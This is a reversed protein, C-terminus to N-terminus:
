SVGGMVVAFLEKGLVKDALGFEVAETATFFHDYSTAEKMTEENQGTYQCLMYNITERREKLNNVISEMQTTNGSVECGLLPEHIMVKSRTSVYRHGPTGAALLVAGMSSASGLAITKIVCPAAEMADLLAFGAKISGGPSDILLTIPDQSEKCLLLMIRIAENVANDEVPGDLYIVREKILLSKSSLTHIGTSNEVMVTPFYYNNGM